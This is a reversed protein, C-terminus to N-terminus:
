TETRLADGFRELWVRETAAIVAFAGDHGAGLLLRAGLPLARGRWDLGRDLADLIPAPDCAPDFALAAQMTVGWGDYAFLAAVVAPDSATVLRLRERGAGFQDLLWDRITRTPAPRSSLVGDLPDDYRFAVTGCATLARGLAAAIEPLVTVDSDDPPLPWDVIACTAHLPRLRAAEAGRGAIVSETVEISAVM